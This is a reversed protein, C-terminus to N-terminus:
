RPAILAALDQDLVDPEGDLAGAIMDAALASWTLGRSAFATAVWVGPHSALEGIVPLRGPVVARWGAWGAYLASAGGEATHVENGLLGRMKQLNSQQGAFSVKSEAAGHVYTSGIAIMGDISPLVYGEGGIVRAPAAQLAAEPMLTIEGALRHMSALIPVDALMDSAALISASAHAAAVVVHAAQGLVAEGEGPLVEVECPPRRGEGLSTEGTSPVTAGQGQVQWRSGCRTIRTVCGDTLRLGPTATLRAILADPRVLLGGSFYAGGRSVSIGALATAEARDVARVWDAPFGLSHVTQAADGGRGGPRDLQVTGTPRVVDHGLMAWHAHARLAGARTLRARANDDRAMVPTLAASIHGAHTTTSGILQVAWGRRALTAAISAGAIGAGVVVVSRDSPAVPDRWRARVPMHERRRALMVTPPDGDACPDVPLFGVKRLDHSDAVRLWWAGPRAHSAMASFSDPGGGLFGHAAFGARGLVQRAPGSLLTLTIVGSEFVLRHQGPLSPPWQDILAQVDEPEGACSWARLLTALGEATWPAPTMAVVHWSAPRDSKSRWARLLALFTAGWDFDALCLTYASQGSWQAWALRALRQAVRCTEGGAAMATAHASAPAPDSPTFSSTMIASYMALWGERGLIPADPM